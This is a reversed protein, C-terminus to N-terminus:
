SNTPTGASDLGIVLGAQTHLTYSPITVDAIVNLHAPTLQQSCLFFLTLVKVSADDLYGTTSIGGDNTLYIGTNGSSYRGSYLAKTWTSPVSYTPFILEM